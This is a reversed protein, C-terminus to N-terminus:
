FDLRYLLGSDGGLAGVSGVLTKMKDNDPSVQLIAGQPTIPSTGLGSAFALLHSISQRAIRSPASPNLDLGHVWWVPRVTLVSLPFQRLHSIITVDRVPDILSGAPIIGDKQLLSVALPSAMSVTIM